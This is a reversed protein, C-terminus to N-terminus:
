INFINWLSSKETMLWSFHNWEIEKQLCSVTNLINFCKSKKIKNDYKKLRPTEILVRSRSVTLFNTEPWAVSALWDSSPCSSHSCCRNRLGKSYVGAFVATISARSVLLFKTSVFHEAIFINMNSSQRVM